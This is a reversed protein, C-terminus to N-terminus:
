CNKMVHLTHIKKREAVLTTEGKSAELLIVYESQQCTPRSIM